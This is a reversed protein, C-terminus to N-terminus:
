PARSADSSTRLARHHLLDPAVQLQPGTTGPAFAQRGDSSSTRSSRLHVNWACKGLLVGSDSFGGGAILTVGLISCALFEAM